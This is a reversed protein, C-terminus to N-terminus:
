PRHDPNLGLNTAPQAVAHHHVAFPIAWQGAESASGLACPAVLLADTSGGELGRGVQKPVTALM